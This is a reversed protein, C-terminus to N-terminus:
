EERRGVTEEAIVARLTTMLDSEIARAQEKIKNELERRAKEQEEQLARHMKEQGERLERRIHVFNFFTLGVGAFALLGFLNIALSADARSHSGAQDSVLALVALVLAVGLGLATMGLIPDLNQGGSVVTQDENQGGSRHLYGRFRPCLIGVILLLGVAVTVFASVSLVILKFWPWFEELPKNPSDNSEPLNSASKDDQAKNPVGVASAEGSASGRSANSEAGVDPRGIGTDDQSHVSSAVVLTVMGVGLALVWRTM